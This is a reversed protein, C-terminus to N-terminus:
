KEVYPYYSPRRPFAQSLLPSGKALGKAAEGHQTLGRGAKPSGDTQGPQSKKQLIDEERPPQSALTRQTKTNEGIVLLFTLFGKETVEEGHDMQNMIKQDGLGQNNELGKTLTGSAKVTGSRKGKNVTNLVASM